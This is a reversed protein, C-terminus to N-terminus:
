QVVEDVGVCWCWRTDDTRLNQEHRLVTETDDNKSDSTAAGKMVRPRNNNNKMRIISKNLKHTRLQIPDSHNLQTTTM